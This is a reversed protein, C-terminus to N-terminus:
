ETYLEGNIYIKDNVVNVDANPPTIIRKGNVYTVGNVGYMDIPSDEDCSITMPGVSATSAYGTGIVSVNGGGIQTIVRNGGRPRSAYDSYCPIKSSPGYSSANMGVVNNNSGYATGNMGSITNNNGYVTANMGSVTNNDGVVTPNMGSVTNNDGWVSVNMGSIIDNDTKYVRNSM